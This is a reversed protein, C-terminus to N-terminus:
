SALGTETEKVPHPTTPNGQMTSPPKPELHPGVRRDACRIQDKRALSGQHSLQTPPTSTTRKQFQSKQRNEPLPLNKGKSIQGFPCSWRAPQIWVVGLRPTKNRNITLLAETRFNTSWSSFFFWVPCKRKFYRMMPSSEWDLRESGGEEARALM